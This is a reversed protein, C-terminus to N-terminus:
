AYIANTAKREPTQLAFVTMEAPVICLFVHTHIPFFIICSKSYPFFPTASSYTHNKLFSRNRLREKPVNCFQAMKRGRTNSRHESPHITRWPRGSRSGAAARREGSMAICSVRQRHSFKPQTPFFHGTPLLCGHDLINEALSDAKAPQLRGSSTPWLSPSGSSPNPSPPATGQLPSPM